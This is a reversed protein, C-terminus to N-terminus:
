GGLTRSLISVGRQYSVLSAARSIMRVYNEPAPRRPGARRGVPRGERSRCTGMERVLDPNFVEPAFFPRADAVSLAAFFAEFDVTGAGPLRRGVMAETRLEESAV